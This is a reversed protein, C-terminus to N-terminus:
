RWTVETSGPELTANTVSDLWRRLERPAEPVDIRLIGAHGSQTTWAVTSGTRSVTISKAEWPLRIIRGDRVDLLGARGDVIIGVHWGDWAIALAMEGVSYRAVRLERDITVLTRDRTFALFGLANHGTLNHLPLQDAVVKPGADTWVTIAGGDTATAFRGYGDIAFRAIKGVKIAKADGTELTYRTLTETEDYIALWEENIAIGVIAHNTTFVRGTQLPSRADRVEVSSKGKLTLWRKRPTCVVLDFNGPISTTTGDRALVVAHAPENLTVHRAEDIRLIAFDPGSCAVMAEDYKAFADIEHKRTALDFASLRNSRTFWAYDDDVGVALAGVGVDPTLPLLTQLNWSRLM